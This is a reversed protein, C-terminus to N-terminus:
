MGVVAIQGCFSLEKISETLISEMNLLREIYHIM